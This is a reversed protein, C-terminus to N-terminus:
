NKVIGNNQTRDNGAVIFNLYGRENKLKGMPKLGAM